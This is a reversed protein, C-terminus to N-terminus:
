ARGSAVFWCRFTGKSTDGFGGEGRKPAFSADQYGIRVSSFGATEMAAHYDVTIADKWAPENNYDSEIRGRIKTWLDMTEYRNPVELHIAVGAPALLRHSEAVIRAIGAESTEHFVTCSFVLDFSGDAFRTHEADGQEFHVAAGLHSARAHAYRLMSAGLDIAHVEAEPFALAVPVISTGVGCGLELIRRPELDPYLAFLHALMTKGRGDNMFGGNKGLMYVAGGRDMIAGQGVGGDDLGYGGPMLHVDQEQMYPPLVLNDSLTLSGLAPAAAARQDLATAQRAVSTGVAEWMLDQSTRRLSAWARFADDEHLKDYVTEVRANSSPGPDLRDALARGHPEIGDALWMKLDRIFLQEALEDHNAQPLMAHSM